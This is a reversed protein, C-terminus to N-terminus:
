TLARAIVDWEENISMSPYERGARQYWYGANWRDGEIRHLLGHIWYAEATHIDNVIDHAKDWSDNKIYWLAKLLPSTAPCNEDALSLTFEEINM